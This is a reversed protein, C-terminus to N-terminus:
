SFAKPDPVSFRCDECHDPLTPSVRGCCPCVYGHEADPSLNIPYPLGHFHLIREGEHYCFYSNNKQEFHIRRLKGDDCRIRLKTHLRFDYSKGSFGPDQGATYTHSLGASLITGSFTRDTFFRYIRFLFFGLILAALIWVALKWGLLKREEPYTKHGLNFFVAGTIWLSLWLLYGVIRRIDTSLVRKRLDAYMTPIGPKM